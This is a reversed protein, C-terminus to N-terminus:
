FKAIDKTALVREKVQWWGEGDLVDEGQSNSVDSIATQWVEQLREDTVDEAKLEV